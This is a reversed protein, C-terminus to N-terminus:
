PKNRNLANRGKPTIRYRQTHSTPKDPLTMEILKQALLRKIARKFNGTRERYSAIELLEKGSKPTESCATLLNHEIANLEDHGGFADDHATTKKGRPLRTKADHSEEHGRDQGGEHSVKNQDDQAEQAEQVEQAENRWLTQIFQGGEQRFEPTRLNASRCLAIMDLIGSGAKEAYRSLFMPEALLPNHPISAHPLCLQALTLSHPLEGPNWIELRDAFLMVQVSANSTYDRHMVANVIAEAVASKPLEYTVPAQTGQSRTGVQRNIKSLVFDLAQDVLDFATGKYIQYSPIPKCVERGHFHMCKVESSILFRQPQTGFLLIASHTPSGNDLLNLHTLAKELSADERISYQRQQGAQQLFWKLKEESIDHLNASPCASADFPRTQLAGQRELYEVLSAYVASNLDAIGEFRRRILQAGASQILMRMKPHRLSDDNGKVFILRKKGLESARKFESETPSLGEGDEHGYDNGFIGIYIDSHAVEDLYVEDARRDLAPLDEFLFVDFFRRFLPDGQLYDRLAFREAQLEKQVSSIFIRQRM